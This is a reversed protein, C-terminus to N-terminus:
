DGAPLELTQGRPVLANPRGSPSPVLRFRVGAYPIEDPLMEAPLARGAADFGGSARAAHPSASILDYPLEVPRSQPAALLARPPALKVAFTRLQYPGFSTVLEGRSINSRKCFHNAAVSNM